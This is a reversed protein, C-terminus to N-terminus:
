VMCKHILYVWACNDAEGCCACRRNATSHPALIATSACAIPGRRPRQTSLILPLHLPNLVPPPTYSSMCTVCLCRHMWQQGGGGGEQPGCCCAGQTEVQGFKCETAATCSDANTQLTRHARCHHILVLLCTLALSRSTPFLTSLRHHTFCFAFGVCQLSSLSSLSSLFAFRPTLQGRKVLAAHM